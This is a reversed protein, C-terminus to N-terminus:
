MSRPKSIDKASNGGTAATTQSDVSEICERDSHDRWDEQRRKAVSALERWQEEGAEIGVKNGHDQIGVKGCRHACVFGLNGQVTQQGVNPPRVRDHQTCIGGQGCRQRDEEPINFCDSVLINSLLRNQLYCSLCNTLWSTKHQAALYALPYVLLRLVYRVENVREEGSKKGKGIFMHRNKTKCGPLKMFEDFELVRKKCCGWGKSGEHFVPQGPHHVCQEDDRSASPSYQANCGRRRCTTNPPIDLSPDDSDSEPAAPPPSPAPNVPSPAVPRAASASIPQPALGATQDIGPAQKKPEQVPTDDVTSHKGTTCPPITLFEDFSM